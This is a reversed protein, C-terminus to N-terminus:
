TIISSGAMRNRSSPPGSAGVSVRGIHPPTATYLLMGAAVTVPLASPVGSPRAVETLWIVPKETTLWAVAQTVDGCDSAGLAPTPMVTGYTRRRDFARTATCHEEASAMSAPLAILWCTEQSKPPCCSM